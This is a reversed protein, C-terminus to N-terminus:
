TWFSLASSASVIRMHPACESASILREMSNPKQRTYIMYYLVALFPQCPFILLLPRRFQATGKKSEKATYLISLLFLIAAGPTQSFISGRRFRKIQLFTCHFLRRAIDQKDRQHCQQQERQTAARLFFLLIGFFVVRLRPLCDQLAALQDKAACLFRSIIVDAHRVLPVAPAHIFVVAWATCVLLAIAIRRYIRQTFRRHVAVLRPIRCRLLIPVIAAIPDNRLNRIPFIRDRENRGPSRYFCIRLVLMRAAVHQPQRLVALRGIIFAIRRVRRLEEESICLVRHHFLQVVQVNGACLRVVLIDCVLETRLEGGAQVGRRAPEAPFRIVRRCRHLLAHEVRIASRVVRVEAEAKAHHHAKIVRLGRLAM